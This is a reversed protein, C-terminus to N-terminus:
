NETASLRAAKRRQRLKAAIGTIGTGLLLLTTPEPIVPNQQGTFGATLDAARGSQVFLDAVTLSFSGSNVGDNFTFTQTPNFFHVSVGGQDVNPSVSGVITAIYTAGQGGAIGTPATFTIDLQFGGGTLATPATNLFFTGLSNPGSLSGIGLSTTGTFGASPTFSLSPVAHIFSTTGSLTVEDARATGHSAGVLVLAAISLIALKFFKSAISKM